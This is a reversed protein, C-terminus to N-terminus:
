GDERKWYDWSYMVQERKGLSGDKRYLALIPLAHNGYRVFVRVIQGRRGQSNVYVEGVKFPSAEILAAHLKDRAAKFEDELRRVENALDDVSLM